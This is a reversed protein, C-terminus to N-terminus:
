LDRTRKRKPHIQKHGKKNKIEMRQGLEQAKVVLELKKNEDM